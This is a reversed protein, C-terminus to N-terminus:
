KYFTLTFMLKLATTVTIILMAAVKKPSRGVYFLLVTLNKLHYIKFNITLRQSKM